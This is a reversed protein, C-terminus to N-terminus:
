GIADRAEATHGSEIEVRALMALIGARAPMGMERAVRLADELISRSDEWQGAAVSVSAVADFALVRSVFSGTEMAHHMSRDAHARADALQGSQVAALARGFSGWCLLERDDLERARALVEDLQERADALKGMSVLVAGRLMPWFLVPDFGVSEGGLRLEGGAIEISQDCEALAKRLNGQFLYHEAAAPMRAIVRLARDGLEDAIEIAARSWRLCEQSRGHFALSMAYRELLRVLLARDGLREALPHAEEFLRRAEAEDLEVRLGYNILQSCAEIHLATSAPDEGARSALVRVRWWHRASEVPARTGTWRASRAHWRAAPRVEGAAEWHHALLAAHEDLSEAYRQELLGAVKRHGRQRQEGLQAHYAVEQTLPHKFAYEVEPYAAEQYIFEGGALEYLVADLSGPSVELAGELLPLPFGGGIVAASYLVQKARESLRDIRAALVVQVSSPIELTEVSRALQYAGRSGALHESEALSQVIEELFFPNGGARKALLPALEGLPAEPGLLDALLEATAEPGLPKLRIEEYNPRDAHPPRYEPRFTMLTLLPFGIEDEIRAIELDVAESAPDIWHLDEFLAVRVDGQRARARIIREAVRLFERQRADPNSLSSSQGPEAVGLLDLVFPVDGALSPALRAMRGAVKNRATEDDDRDLVGFTSRIVSMHFGLPLSKGHPPCCAGEVPIGRARCLECFEYGLRSKGTGAEAVIGVLQPEGARARELAAALRAMERDRGVFKALGRARSVDFRSRFEGVGELEYVGVPDTSGKVKAPGLDRLRFYGSAREATSEAAYIRGAEALQQMRAALNVVQGQATYDMRLDDGIRGVVVEGSNLGMRVSFNLGQSLRLEDAYRRLEGQLHLAAYCARQAHDEHAIPAGFLAMIGDGTYQNVTGEFRHIGDALIQFFRDLIRHWEEPDVQEALEMSGKVDAFLVTVQKREGELASRSTLIKDALHKPTYDRPAPAERGPTAPAIPQGCQNCFGADGPLAAGCGSCITALPTGCDLCFRSGAPNERECSPCTV